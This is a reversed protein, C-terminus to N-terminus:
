FINKSICCLISKIINFKKWFCVETNKKNIYIRIIEEQRSEIKKIIMSYLLVVREAILRNISDFLMHKLGSSNLHIDKQNDM